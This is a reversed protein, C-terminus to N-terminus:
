LSVSGDHRVSVVLGGRVDGLIANKSKRQVAGGLPYDSFFAVDFRLSDMYSLYGNPISLVGLGLRTPRSSDLHGPLYSSSFYRPALAALAALGFFSSSFIFRLYASLLGALSGSVQFSDM